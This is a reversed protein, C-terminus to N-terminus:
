QRGPLPGSVRSGCPVGEVGGKPLGDSAPATAAGWASQAPVWSCIDGPGSHSSSTLPLSRMKYSPGVHAWLHPLLPQLRDPASCFASPLRGCPVPSSPAPVVLDRAAGPCTCPLVASCRSCAAAQTWSALGWAEPVQLSCSRLLLQSLPSTAEPPVAAKHAGHPPGVSLRLLSGWTRGGAPWRTWLRDGHRSHGRCSATAKLGPEM